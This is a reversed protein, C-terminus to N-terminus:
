LSLPFIQFIDFNTHAHMHIPIIDIQPLELTATACRPEEIGRSIKYIIRM